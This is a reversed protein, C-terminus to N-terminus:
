RDPNKKEGSDLMLDSFNDLADPNDDILTLFADYKMDNGGAKFSCFFVMVMDSMTSIDSVSKGAMAEFEIMARISLKVPYERDGIKVSKDKLLKM